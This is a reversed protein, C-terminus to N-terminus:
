FLRRFDHQLQGRGHCMIRTKGCRACVPPYLYVWDSSVVGESLVALKDFAFCKECSHPTVPNTGTKRTRQTREYESWPPSPRLWTRRVSQSLASSTLITCYRESCKKEQFHTVRVLAVVDHKRCFINLFQRPFGRMLLGGHSFLWPFGRGQSGRRATCCRFRRLIM